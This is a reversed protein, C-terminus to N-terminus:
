VKFSDKWAFYESETIEEDEHDRRSRYWARLAKSLLEQDPADSGDPMAVVVMGDLKIPKIGFREEIDFLAQMAEDVTGACDSVLAERSVGLEASLADVTPDKPYREGAEYKRLTIESVGIIEALEAQSLGKAARMRKLNQAFGM